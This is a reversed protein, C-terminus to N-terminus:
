RLGHNDMNEKQNESSSMKKKKCIDIRRNFWENM